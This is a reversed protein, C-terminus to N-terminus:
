SLRAKRIEATAVNLEYKAEWAEAKRMQLPTRLRFFHQHFASYIQNQAQLLKFTPEDKAERRTSMAM